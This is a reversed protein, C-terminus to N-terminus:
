SGGRLGALGFLHFFNVVLKLIHCNIQLYILRGEGVHHTHGGGTRVNKGSTPPLTPLPGLAPILLTSSINLM